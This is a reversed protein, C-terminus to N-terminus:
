TWAFSMRSLSVRQAGPRDGKRGEKRPGRNVRERRRRERDRDPEDPAANTACPQARQAHRQQQESQEIGIENLLVPTRELVNDGHHDISGLALVYALPWTLRVLRAVFEFRPELRESVDVKPDDFGRAVFGFGLSGFKESSQAAREGIRRGLPDAARDDDGVAVRVVNRLGRGRKAEVRRQMRQDGAVFALPLPTDLQNLRRAVADDALILDDFRADEVAGVVAFRDLERHPSVALRNRRDVGLDSLPDIHLRRDVMGARVHDLEFNRRDFALDGGVAIAGHDVDLAHAVLEPYQQDGALRM